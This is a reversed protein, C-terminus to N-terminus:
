NKLFYIFFNKKKKKKKNVNKAFVTYDVYIIYNTYTDKEIPSLPKINKFM